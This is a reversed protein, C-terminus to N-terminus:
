KNPSTLKEPAWKGNKDINSLVFRRLFFVIALANLVCFSFIVPDSIDVETSLFAISGLAGIISAIVWSVNQAMTM